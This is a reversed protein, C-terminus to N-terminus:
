IHFDILETDIGKGEIRSLVKKVNRNSYGLPGQGCKYFAVGIMMEITGRRIINRKTFSIELYKTFWIFFRPTIIQLSCSTTVTNAEQDSHQNFLHM